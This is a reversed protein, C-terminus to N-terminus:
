KALEDLMEHANPETQLKLEAPLASATRALLVTVTMYATVNVLTKFVDPIVDVVKILVVGEIPIGAALYVPLTKFVDGGAPIGPSSFSLITVAMVFSLIQTPQLDINYLHALFLMGAPGSITRNVKFTSASFPLAFGSVEPPVTLWRTAGELMAPLSALSSRTSVAVLQAPYLSRAFSRLPVRGVWVAIPYLLLTFGILLCSLLAVFQLLIGAVGLGTQRAFGFTVAFVGIPAFRILWYVMVFIAANVSKFFTTLHEALDDRIRTIALAFLVTFTILQLLEGNAAAKLPNTPVLNVLWDTFSQDAQTTKALDLTSQPVNAQLTAVTDPDFRLWNLIPTGLFVTFVAALELLVVFLVVSSFLMQGVRSVNRSSTVALVLQSVILPLVTMQLGRVWLMGISAIVSSIGQTTSDSVGKLLSGALLGVVLAILSTTTSNDKWSSSQSQV